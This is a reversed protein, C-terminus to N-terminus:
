FTCTSSRRRTRISLPPDKDENAAVKEVIVLEEKVPKQRTLNKVISRLSPRRERHERQTPTSPVCLKNIQDKILSCRLTMDIMTHFAKEVDAYSERASVEHYPCGVDSAYQAGNISSLGRAASLDTKNAMIVIPKLDCQGIKDIIRKIRSIEQFSDSDTVSYVLVICDAWQASSTVM